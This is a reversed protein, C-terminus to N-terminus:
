VVLNTNAVAENLAPGNIGCKCCCFRTANGLRLSSCRLALSDCHLITSLFVHVFWTLVSVCISGVELCGFKTEVERSLACVSRGLRKSVHTDAVTDNLTTDSLETPLLSCQLALKSKRLCTEVSKLLGRLADVVHRLALDVPIQGLGCVVL